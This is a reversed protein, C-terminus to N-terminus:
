SIQYLDSLTRLRVIACCVGCEPPLAQCLHTALAVRTSYADFYALRAAGEWKLPERASTQLVTPEAYSRDSARCVM